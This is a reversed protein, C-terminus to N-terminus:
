PASAPGSIPCKPKAGIVQRWFTQEFAVITESIHRMLGVAISFFVAALAMWLIGKLPSQKPIGPETASEGAM